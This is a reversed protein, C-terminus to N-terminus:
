ATERPLTFFFVAGENVKSQAWIRGDHRHIIRQVIALGVGTGDYEEDSHLRQFVGFLKDYYRMDFGVGNDKVYFLNEDGECRGGVEIVAPTRSRSFKLANLLLNSVVQKILSRDGFAPPLSDMRLEARAESGAPLVEKWVDSVLHGMDFATLSMAARGLRSLALLDDILRGMSQANGRIANLRRRAEEDITDALEKLLIRSFGEIARLPAMLDHSVSYTFSELEKNAAELQRSREELVSAARKSATRDLMAGVIRRVKGSSPDRAIYARDYIDAWTGDARLMRYECTWFDADGDIAAQLSSSARARDDPHIHDIWWQWSDGTERPRGFKAAYVENWSVRSDLLNMDWIADDTATTALRYREDSERKAAEIEKLESLDNGIALLETLNGRDDYIAKNTWSVWVLRGDKCRNQHVNTIYNEPNRMMDEAMAAINRGDDDEEPIITDLARKGIIEDASYGFFKLGYMNMFTINMDRDSRLIISNSSEVLQRYQEEREQLEATREHVRVELEDRSRQLEQKATHLESIDAAILCLLHPADVDSFSCLSLLVPVPVGDAALLVSEGRRPGDSLGKQFCAKFFKQMRPEIFGYISAGIIQELPTRLMEAFRQNCYYITGDPSMTATGENLMEIMVRFPREAGKLTFVQDGSETAVVLADVEGNRIARLTEEADSLQATLREITARLDKDPIVRSERM